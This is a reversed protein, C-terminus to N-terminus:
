EEGIDLQLKYVYLTEKNYNCLEDFVGCYQDPVYIGCLNMDCIYFNKLKEAGITRSIAEITVENIQHGEKKVDHWVVFSNEGKHAFVKETDQQIGGLSHDGDIFYVDIKEKIEDFSFEKSDALYQIMNPRNMLRNSFDVMGYKKCFNKMSAPHDEPVTISYCKDAIASINHISEGIYTGIELYTHLGFYIMVAKLFLYDLVGSGGSKFCVSDLELASKEKVMRLFKGLCFIHENIMKEHIVSQWMERILVNEDYLYLNKIKMEMLQRAIDKYDVPTIVVKKDRHKDLAKSDEIKVGGWANKGKKAPDNDVICCIEYQNSLREIADRCRKGAGFLVIKEM